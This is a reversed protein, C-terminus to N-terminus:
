MKVYQTQRNKMLVSKNNSYQNELEKKYKKIEMFMIMVM